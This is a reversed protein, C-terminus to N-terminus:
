TTSDTLLGLGAGAELAALLSTVVGELQSLTAGILVGTVAPRGIATAGMFGLSDGALGILATDAASVQIVSNGASDRLHVGNLDMLIRSSSNRLFELDHASTTQLQAVAGAGLKLTATRSLLLEETGDAAAGLGLRAFQPTDATGVGISNRLTAGTELAYVGSAQGVLMTSDAPAADSRGTGGRATALTGLSIEAADLQLDGIPDGESDTSTNQLKRELANLRADPTLFLKTIFNGTVPRDLMLIHADGDPMITALFDDTLNTGINKFATVSTYAAGDWTASAVDLAKLGLSLGISVNGNVDVAVYHEAAGGLPGTLLLAASNLRVRSNGAVNATGATSDLKAADGGNITIRYSHAGVVGTTRLGGPAGPDDIQILDYNIFAGGGQLASMEAAAAVNFADQNTWNTDQDVAYDAYNTLGGGQGNQFDKFLTPAAPM